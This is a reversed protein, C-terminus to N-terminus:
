GSWCWGAHGAPCSGGTRSSTSSSAFSAAGLFHLLSVPVEWAPHLVALAEMTFVFTATGFTLLALSVLLGMRDDSRRWFILLSVATCVAAFIVDM